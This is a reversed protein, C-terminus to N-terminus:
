VKLTEEILSAAIRWIYIDVEAPFVAVPHQLIDVFLMARFPHGHDARGDPHLGAHCYTLDALRQPHRFRINGLQGVTQGHSEEGLAFVAPLVKGAQGPNRYIGLWVGRNEFMGSSQDVERAMQSNM